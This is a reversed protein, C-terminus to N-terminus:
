TLGRASKLLSRQQSETKLKVKLGRARSSRGAKMNLEQYGIKAISNWGQLRIM